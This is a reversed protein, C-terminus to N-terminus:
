LSKAKRILTQGGAIMPIGLCLASMLSYRLASDPDGPLTVPPASAANTSPTGAGDTTVTTETVATTPVIHEVCVPTSVEKKITSIAAKAKSIQTKELPVYGTPIEGVNNGITQGKGVMFELLTSYYTLEEITARCVDIAAYTLTALPYSEDKTLAPTSVKVGAVGSDVFESIASNISETTAGVPEGNPNILKATSLGLREATALDTITLMFRRGPSQAGGSVFAAPSRSVDWFTKTGSEGRFARVGGDHLDAVYPRLEFTGFGPEPIYEYEQYTELDAKPFSNITADNNIDLTEYNPNVVMGWEDEEGDLFAKADDDAKIWKWVQAFVDENGIPVMLGAPEASEVFQDFEPNLAIFEPDLRLNVANNELYDVSEGGPVDDQYSQTLLKAVLRPNLVMETVQQGEKYDLPYGGKVTYNINFAITLATKVAPAYAITSGTAETATLPNDIFALRAAGTTTSVINRRSESDGIMSFGFVSKQACMASQWSAFATAVMENGTTRTEIAGIPCNSQVSRFELPFEIRNDWNSQSLPSGELRGNTDQYSLGSAAFEGRPVVVLWCNRIERDAQEAGCGLHPAEVATQIEFNIEGSGDATTRAGSVENTSTPGFYLEIDHTSEGDPFASSPATDFPVSYIHEFEGLPPPIDFIGTYDQFPDEYEYGLSRSMANVGLTSVSAGTAAGFQCNTPDATGTGDDWCQMIQVYNAALEQPTTEVGGTWSVNVAQYTLDQVQSVTVQLNEFLSYNAETEDRVTTSGDAAPLGDLWSITMSGDADVTPIQSVQMAVPEATPQPTPDPTPDPTPEGTPLVDVTGEGETASASSVAMGGFFVGLGLDALLLMALFRSRKSHQRETM